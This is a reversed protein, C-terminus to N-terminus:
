DATEELLKSLMGHIQAMDPQNSEMTTSDTVEKSVALGRRCMNLQTQAASRLQRQEIICGLSSSKGEQSM